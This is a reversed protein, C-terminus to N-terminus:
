SFILSKFTSQLRLLHLKLAFDNVEDPLAMLVAVLDFSLLDLESLHDLSFSSFKFFVEVM